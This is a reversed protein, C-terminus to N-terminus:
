AESCTELCSRGQGSGYGDAGYSHIHRSVWPAVQLAQARCIASPSPSAGDQPPCGM